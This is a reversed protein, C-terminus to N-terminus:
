KLTALVEAHLEPTASAITSEAPYPAGGHWDTISGGAGRVIPVLAAIDWPNMIPDLMVDAWGAAVLAYGYCDGWTRYLKAATALRECAVADQYRALNRTDSTLVTADALRRTSRTRVPIGNLTTTAGDGILLQDLAVLHIAGLAPQGDHLLAIM